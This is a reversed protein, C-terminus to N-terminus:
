ITIAGSSSDKLFKIKGFERGSVGGQVQIIINKFIKKSLYYIKSFLDAIM